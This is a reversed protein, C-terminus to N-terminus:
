LTEFERVIESAVALFGEKWNPLDFSLQTRLKNTDLQSNLPRKAATPSEATTIAQVDDAYATLPIGQQEACVLLTQAIEHWSTLGRPALHYIGQPWANGQEIARLADITVRAILSPTTPVGVQDKIVKLRGQQLAIRLITKAFNNGDKGIVWTTRFIIRQCNIDAIAREGALKSGGYVNIPNTTDTEIYPTQKGGDFVYDTSYHFLWIRRQEAIRALNAVAEFNVAYASNIDTEAEDVATYAAANVIIDPDADRVADRVATHRTIDLLAHDFAVINAASSLQRRLEKGLQGNAGLLLIKM